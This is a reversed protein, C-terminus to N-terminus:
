GTPPEPNFKLSLEIVTNDNSKEDRCPGPLEGATLGRELVNPSSGARQVSMGAPFDHLTSRPQHGGTQNELACSFWGCWSAFPSSKQAGVDALGDSAVTGGQHPALAPWSTTQEASPCTGLSCTATVAFLRGECCSPGPQGQALHWSLVCGCHDRLCQGHLEHEMGGTSWSVRTNTNTNIPDENNGQFKASCGGADNCKM